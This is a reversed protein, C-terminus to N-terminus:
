GFLSWIIGIGKGLWDLWILVGLLILLYGAARQIQPLYQYVARLRFLYRRLVVVLLFFPISFGLAYVFLLAAGIGVTASGSAYVLITALIPGTCPTWGVTFSVGLLFAGFPGQFTRSLLPRYERELLGIRIVGSMTLGMVIIVLAGIKQIELQHEFFWEGLLSATAGMLIFVVTFGALFCLANVYIKWSREDEGDVSGALVASFTPLMPLVCPSVFSLLGALFVGILSINGLEM